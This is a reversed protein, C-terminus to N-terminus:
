AANSRERRARSRGVLLHVITLVVVGLVASAFFWTGAMPRGYTTFNGIQKVGMIVPTFPQVHVPAEPNLNHGYSWLRYVFRGASYAGFYFFLVTLDVLSRVNGVVAARLLLIAAIGFGFPMWGLENMDVPDLKKMGIYHNLINIEKLDNGDHGAELKYSYIEFSLGHPYQPAEFDFHWLPMFVAFAVPIVLLALIPRSWLFLPRQLFEYFGDLAEKLRALM